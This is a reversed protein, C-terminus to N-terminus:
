LDIKFCNAFYSTTAVWDSFIGTVGVQNYLVDLMHFIDGDKSIADTFTSVYYDKKAAAAAIPGSRELSWTIIKLGAEKAKKAYVSPALTGNAASLLFNIPPAIYNIGEERYRTLNASAADGSNGGDGEDLLMAQKGFEKDAKLWYILDDHLFSQLYVNEPKVKAEVLTDIVQQAYLEQTYNGEFPMKVQPTKLEPTHKLGLAETLKIHEKFSMPTGCTNYLDTRWPLTGHLYAEPTVASANFGDMKACLSKFEKLTIDSTCCKATAQKGDKAPTFPTSCKANLEPINVINTTTHLDCNSHRCVLERDKTFSVDCELIGAGMRAGAMNSELSHEPFQLCAGGRHAIVWPSVKMENEKCSNLKSKLAGKELNDVLYYPRPGLQIHKIPKVSSGDDPKCPTAAVQGVVALGALVSICNSHM